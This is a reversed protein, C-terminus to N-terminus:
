LGDSQLKNRVPQGSSGLPMEYGLNYNHLDSNTLMGGLFLKDGIHGPDNFTTQFGYRYRGSYKGGHNDTYLITDAQKKDALTVTLDSSGVETGASLIGAAAIGPLDNLNNLVTELPGNKIISGAKLGSLFREAQGGSLRSRNNIKIEGITGLLIRIEVVGNQIDQQPLFATAVTYGQNRCYDTVLDAAQQLESITIDRGMYDKTLEAFVTTDIKDQGTFKFCSLMFTQEGQVKSDAATSYVEAQQEAQSRNQELARVQPDSGPLAAAAWVTSTMGLTLAVAM